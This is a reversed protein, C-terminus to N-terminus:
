RILITNGREIKEADNNMRYRCIWVFNGTDQQIGKVKGDWGKFPDNTKFILQSYRNYVSFEFFQINGFLMAKLQDNKTDANPTFASPVYLGTLCQKEKVLVSDKGVCANRDTVQLWYNGPARISIVPSNSGTSWLYQQYGTISQVDISGYSCITTERFPLFNAPRPLIATITVTDTGKCNNGDVINVWYTNVANVTIAPGTQGNSWAYSLFGNGANLVRNGNICLPGDAGLNIIPNAYVRLNITDFAKCGEATVAAAHYQGTDNIMIQQSSMGNSWTYSNFGPGADATITQGSCIDRDNGLNLSPVRNVKIRVTDFSFCGATKEAIVSYFTDTIPFVQVSPNSTSSINYAPQWRYNLFGATATLTIGDGQCLQRDPGLNLPAAAQATVQVTDYFLNGCGDTVTVWYTGPNTVVLQAASSGNQWLYTAYGPQANIIITNGPCIAVAPGLDLPAPNAYAKFYISDLSEECGPLGAYLYGEWAQLFTVQYTSDSTTVIQAIQPDIPLFQALTGCEKNRYARILVPMNTCITDLVSSLALSDCFSTQSCLTQPPDFAHSSSLVLRPRRELFVARKISDAYVKGDSYYSFPSTYTINNDLGLCQSATDSMHMRRFVLRGFGNISDGVLRVGVEGGDAMKLYHPERPYGENNFTRFRQKTINGNDFHAVVERGSYGSTVDLMNFVGTGDPYMTIRTNYGNSQINNRFIYGQSFNFASDLIVVGAQYLPDIGNHQYQYYGGLWGSLAVNGNSLLQLPEPTIFAYKYYPTDQLALMKTSITDGTTKNLRYVFIHSNYLNYTAFAVIENQRVLIGAARDNAYGNSNLMYTNSWLMNGTSTNLRMVAVGKAWTPGTIFVDGTYADLEWQHVYFYDASGSGNTWLRSYYDKTWIVNGSADTKTFIQDNNDSIPESGSGGLLLSGDQLEMVLYYNLWHTPTANLSDYFKAWIVQGRTDAKILIGGIANNTSNAYTGPILINGNASVISQGAYFIVSDQGISSKGSTDFCAIFDNSIGKQITYAFQKNEVATRTINAAGTNAARAARNPPLSPNKQLRLSDIRKMATIAESNQQAFSFSLFNAICIIFLVVPRWPVFM